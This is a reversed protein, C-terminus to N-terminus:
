EAHTTSVATTDDQSRGSSRSLLSLLQLLAGLTEETRRPDEYLLQQLTLGDLTAFVLRAIAQGEIGFSRLSESVVGVYDDYSKRVDKRLDPSRLSRLLVEYQFIADEPDESLARSVGAAFQGVEEGPTALRTAELTHEVAWKLADHIMSERTGFHYSALGHTVGAEAAVSRFTIGDFGDRAVLRTLARCLAERGQGRAIKARRTQQKRPLDSTPM